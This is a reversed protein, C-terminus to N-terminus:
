GKRWEVFPKVMQHNTGMAKELNGRLFRSSMKSTGDRLFAAHRVSSGLSAQMSGDKIQYSGALHGYKNAPLESPSSARYTRGGGIHYERGSKAAAADKIINERTRNLVQRLFMHIASRNLAAHFKPVIIKIIM